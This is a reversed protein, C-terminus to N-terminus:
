KTRRTDGLWGHACFIGAAADGSRRASRNTVLHLQRELANTRDPQWDLQTFNDFTEELQEAVSKSRSLVGSAEKLLLSKEQDNALALMKQLRVSTAQRSAEPIWTAIGPEYGFMRQINANPSLAIYQGDKATQWTNAGAASMLGPVKASGNCEAIQVGVSGGWGFAGNGSINGAANQWLKQQTNHAFLSQPLLALNSVDAQVTPGLLPGVNSIVALNGASYLQEFSGLLRHFGFAGQQADGVELLDAEAV